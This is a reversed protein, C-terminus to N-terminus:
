VAGQGSFVVVVEAGGKAIIQKAAQNVEEMELSEVGVLKALEGIKNSLGTELVKELAEGATDVV